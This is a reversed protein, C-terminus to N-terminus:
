LATTLQPIPLGPWGAAMLIGIVDPPQWGPSKAVGFKEDGPAHPGRVKRLNARHVSRFVRAWPLRHFHATGLTVYAVDVLERAVHPLYVEDRPADPTLEYSLRYGYTEALERVEALIFRLRADRSAPDSETPPGGYAPLDFRAHFAGVDAFDSM